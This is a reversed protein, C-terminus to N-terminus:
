NLLLWACSLVVGSFLFSFAAAALLRARRSTLPAPSAGLEALARELELYTADKRLWGRASPVRELLTEGEERMGTLLLAPSTLELPGVRNRVVVGDLLVVDATWSRGVHEAQVPTAARRVEYKGDLSLLRELGEAIGAHPSLVLIRPRSM